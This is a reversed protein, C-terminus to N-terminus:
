QTNGDGDGDDSRRHSDLVRGEREHEAQAHTKLAKPTGHATRNEAARAQKERRNRAKRARRLNIVDGM